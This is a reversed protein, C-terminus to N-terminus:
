KKKTKNTIKQVGKESTVAKIKCEEFEKMM